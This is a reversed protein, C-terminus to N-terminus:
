DSSFSTSLFTFLILETFLRLIILLKVDVEPTITLSLLLYALYELVQEDMWEATQTKDDMWGDM